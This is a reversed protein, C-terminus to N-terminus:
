ALLHSWTIVLFLAPVSHVAESVHGRGVKMLTFHSESTVYLCVARM